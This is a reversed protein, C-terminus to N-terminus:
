AIRDLVANMADGQLDIVGDLMPTNERSGPRVKRTRVLEALAVNEDYEPDTNETNM